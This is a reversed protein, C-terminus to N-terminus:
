CPTYICIRCASSYVCYRVQLKENERGKQPAKTIFSQHQVIVGKVEYPAEEVLCGM